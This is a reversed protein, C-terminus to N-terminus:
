LKGLQHHRQCEIMSVNGQCAYSRGGLTLAGWTVPAIMVRQVTLTLQKPEALFGSLFCNTVSCMPGPGPHTNRGTLCDAKTHACCIHPPQIRGELARQGSAGETRVRFGPQLCGM